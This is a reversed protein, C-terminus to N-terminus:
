VKLYGREIQDALEEYVVDAVLEHLFPDSGAKKLQQDADLAFFYAKMSTWSQWRELYPGYTDRLIQYDFASPTSSAGFLRKRGSNLKQNCAEQFTTDDLVDNWRTVSLTHGEFPHSRKATEMLAAHLVDLKAM